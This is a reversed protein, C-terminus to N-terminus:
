RAPRTAAPRPTERPPQGTNFRPDPVIMREAKNVNVPVDAVISGSPPKMTPQKGTVNPGIRTMTGCDIGNIQWNVYYLGVQEFTVPLDTLLQSDEPSNPPKDAPLVINVTKARDDIKVWRKEEVGYKWLSLYRFTGPETVQKDPARLDFASSDEQGWFTIIAEWKQREAANPDSPARRPAAPRTQALSVPSLGAATAV